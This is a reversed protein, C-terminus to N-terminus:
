ARTRTRAVRPKSELSPEFGLTEVKEPLDLGLDDAMSMTRMLEKSDMLSEVSANIKASLVDSNRNAIADARLLQIEHELRTMESKLVQLNDQAEQISRKHESLTAKLSMKSDRLKVQDERLSAIESELADLKEQIEREDTELLYTEVGEEMVLMKLYTWLLEQLKRNILTNEPNNQAVEACTGSLRHYRLANEHRLRSLMSQQKDKFAQLKEAQSVAHDYDALQDVKERFKKSTPLYVWALVYAALGGMLVIPNATVFALGLGALCLGHTLSSAFHKYYNYEM